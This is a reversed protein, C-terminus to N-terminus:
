GGLKQGVPRSLRVERHFRSGFPHPPDKPNVAAGAQRWRSHMAYCDPCCIRQDIHREDGPAVPLFACREGNIDVLEFPGDYEFRKGCHPCTLVTM